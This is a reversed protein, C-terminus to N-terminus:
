PNSRPLEGDARPDGTRHGDRGHVIDVAALRDIAEEHPDGATDLFATPPDDPLVGGTATVYGAIFTAM